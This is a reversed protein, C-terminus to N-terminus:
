PKRFIVGALWGALLAMLIAFVGYVAAHRHAFEFIRAGIGIKSVVLPTTQASRVEGDRILYVTVTYTGTPVNSPLHVDTRFLRPAVFRVKGLRDHFVGLSQKNRILANRFSATVAEPAVEGPNFRLFQLGIQHRALLPPDAIEQLPRSSAVSYFSPIESFPFQQRNVWIGAVREKRRVIDRREPGRVVVVVDGEGNTAGFLLLDTGVFGTTVAVLHKSLDAVLAQARAEDASQWFCSVFGVLLGLRGIM